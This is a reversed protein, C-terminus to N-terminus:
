LRPRRVPFGLHKSGAPNRPMPQSGVTRMLGAVSTLLKEDQVRAKLATMAADSDVPEAGPVAAPKGFIGQPPGADMEKRAREFDENTPM